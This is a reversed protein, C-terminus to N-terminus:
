VGRHNLHRRHADNYTHSSAAGGTPSSTFLRTEAERRRTTVHCWRCSAAFPASHALRAVVEELVEEVVMMMM